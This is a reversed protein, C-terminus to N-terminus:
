CAGLGSEAACQERRHLDVLTEHESEMGLGLAALEWMANRGVGKSKMRLSVVRKVQMVRMLSKSRKKTQITAINYLSEDQIERIFENLETKEKQTSEGLPTTDM